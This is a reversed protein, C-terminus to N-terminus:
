REPAVVACGGVGKEGAHFVAIASQHGFAVLQV